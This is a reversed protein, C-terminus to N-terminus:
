VFSNSGIETWSKGDKHHVRGKRQEETAHRIESHEQETSSPQLRLLTVRVYSADFVQKNIFLNVLHITTGISQKAALKAVAALM